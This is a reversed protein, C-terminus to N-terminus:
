PTAKPAPSQNIRDKYRTEQPFAPPDTTLFHVPFKNVEIKANSGLFERAWEIAANDSTAASPTQAEFNPLGIFDFVFQGSSLKYPFNRGHAKLFKGYSSKNRPAPPTFHGCASFHNPARLVKANFLERFFDLAPQLRGMNCTRLEIRNRQKKKLNDMKSVIRAIVAEDSIGAQKKLQDIGVEIKRRNEAVAVAVSAPNNPDAPLVPEQGGALKTRVIRKLAELDSGAANLGTRLELVKRLAVLAPQTAVGQGSVIELAFGSPQGHAQIVFDEEDPFKILMLDIMSEFTAPKIRATKGKPVTLPPIGFTEFYEKAADTLYLGAARLPGQAAGTIVFPEGRFAARSALWAEQELSWEPDSGGRALQVTHALEHGVVLRMRDLPGSLIETSLLITEEDIAMAVAGACALIRNAAPGVKVSVHALSCGFSQEFPKRWNLPVKDKDMVHGM